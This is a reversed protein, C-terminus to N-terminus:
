LVALLASRRKGAVYSVLMVLLVHTVSAIYLGEHRSWVIQLPSVAVLSAFILGFRPSHVIRGLAWALLVAAVGYFAGVLVPLHFSPGFVLQFAVAVPMVTASERTWSVQYTRLLRTWQAWLGGEGLAKAVYLPTTQSFWYPVTLGSRWWLVRTLLAGTLVLGLLMREHAGAPLGTPLRRARVLLVGTAVVFVAVLGQAVHPSAALPARHAPWREETADHQRGDDQRPGARQADGEEGAEDQAVVVLLEPGDRVHEGVARDQGVLELQAEAGPQEVDRRELEEANGLE